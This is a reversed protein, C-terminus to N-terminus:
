EAADEDDKVVLALIAVPLAIKGIRFIGIFAAYRQRDEWTHCGRFHLADNGAHQMNDLM